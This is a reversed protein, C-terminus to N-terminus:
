AGEDLLMVLKKEEDLSHLRVLGRAELVLLAQRLEKQSIEFGRSNLAEQLATEMMRKNNRRLMEIIAALDMRGKEDM